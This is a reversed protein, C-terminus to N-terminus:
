QPSPVPQPDDDREVGPLRSRAQPVVSFRRGIQPAAGVAANVRLGPPAWRDPGSRPASARPASAAASLTWHPVPDALPAPPDARSLDVGPVAGRVTGLATGTGVPSTTVPMLREAEFPM